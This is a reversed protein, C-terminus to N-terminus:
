NVTLSLQIPSLQLPKGSMSTATPTLTLTYTGKQTGTTIPTVVSIGGGGCGALGYGALVLILLSGAYALRRPMFGGSQKLQNLVALVALCTSLLILMWYPSLPSNPRRDSIPALSRQQTTVTVSVTAPAGATLQVPSTVTCSTTSPAGSCAMTVPGSYALGATLQLAYQATQGANVATSLASSPSTLTYIPSATGNVTFTQPSNPADDTITVTETRSGVAIPAFTVSMSCNANPAIATGVCPNSPNIFESVNAGGFVVGSIHLPATGSNSILINTSNSATGQTGAVAVTAPSILVAPTLPTASNGTGSLAFSQPSAPANDIIQLNAQRPGTASPTFTIGVSCTANAAVAAGACTNSAFAFDSGNAGTLAVASINLTANGSNTVTVIVPASTTGQTTSALMIPSSPMVTVGPTAPALGNGSLALIQPSSSADDTFQLNAQRGGTGSPTFTVGVTCTASVAITAATCTNSAITFDTPNTGTIAVASIHLPAGGSNTVTISIPATSTGTVVDPFDIPSAPAFGVVPTPGLTWTLINQTATIGGTGGTFGAYATTAGITTPIDITWSHTFVAHTVTDTITMNLSTGDYVMHVDFVDGSHLDIGSGTMDVFPTTPSAGNIYLGTSDMGEGFNSYLDFKVAVSNPIGGTGSSTDLGYGLPGGAVGLAATSTAQLAFTFGDATTGPTVQFTFDTVFNQVNVRTAYWASSAEFQNGDTLELVSGNLQASGNMVLAGATFGNELKVTNGLNQAVTFGNIITASQGDANTVSVNHGGLTATPAVNLNVNIQTPSFFTCTNVTGGFDSDFNCTPAPQFNTGTLIVAANTAGQFEANPTIATLTPAPLANGAVVSFGNALTAIQTDTDTVIINRPGVVASALVDVNATLQTASNFICSNVDIGAGFSCVPNALFNTGTLVVNLNTQGQAGSTPAASALTPAPSVPTVIITVVPPNPDTIGATDTVTLSAQYTGATAFTVVGPNRMSSTAPSGGRISWSYGTITGANATGSGAFTVSQGQNVTATSTAPSTITGTPPIDAPATSVQVFKAVSPVGANNILFLMYYGPPAVNGNPPGTVTLAGSGVTFSLGVQRQDMDFAHTAAGDKMLVVSAINAADPTQVQFSSAYGIVSPTVTTITPRTAPTSDANFLYAPSYIEVSPDYTGRTPNGGAVWVTADPLLLAVSHYLRPVANAGASSITNTTPDYLDANLSATTVDEDNLSGGVTLVKGNPLITANMEIRPASMSPGNTWAPTAASLDIIETTATAPNGGGFIIVKPAYNNAPTLPLLVSSGYLRIGGYNTTAIVNSWTNNSPDFTRSQTSPGSYFVKGNPLLHLRPYLPPTWPATVPPAWGVGVKYIEVRTNTASTEDLGSFTMVRGDGLVTSTPYWRGHTMDEMDTFKGTVPNYISTRNWGFFPDYQLNGGMIFPRGDPLVIMGNCFMDWSQTQTTITNNSPDWVGVNYITQAPYNGSGSVILIKGNSLLATHIPNIPMQTSVTQWTGQVNAQGHATPTCFAATLALVAILLSTLGCLPKNCMEPGFPRAPKGPQTTAKRGAYYM